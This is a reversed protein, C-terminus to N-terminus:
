NKEEETMMLDFMAQMQPTIFKDKRCLLQRYVKISCENVDLKTIKGNKISEKVTYEPLFSIGMNEEVLRCIVDTDGMELFPTLEMNQSALYQDLQDRYSMGKETLIIDRGIIDKIAINEKKALENNVSVVFIVNEPKEMVKQLESKYIHEDLTYVMDIENRTLMAFMEEQGSSRLVIEVLPYKEHYKKLIDPFYISCLSEALGIRLKGSVDENKIDSIAQQTTQLITRAYVALRAGAPTVSVTRGVRDFLKVGLESELQQIQMTVASQSYGLEHATKSFKGMEAARLFTNLTKLEM